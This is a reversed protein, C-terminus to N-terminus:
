AVQSSPPDNQEIQISEHGYIELLELRPLVLGAVELALIPDVVPKGDLLLAASIADGATVTGDANEVPERQFNLQLSVSVDTGTEKRPDDEHFTWKPLEYAM